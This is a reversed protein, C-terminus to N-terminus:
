AELPFKVARNAMDIFENVIIGHGLLCAQVALCGPKFSGNNIPEHESLGLVVASTGSVFLDMEGKVEDDDRVELTMGTRYYDIDILEASLEKNAM